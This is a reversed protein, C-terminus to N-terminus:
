IRTSVVLKQRARAQLPKRKKARKARAEELEQFSMVKARGLIESRTSGRVEAENNVQALLRNHDQLLCQKAFLIQAASALKQVGRQLRRKRPEDCAGADQQILNQLSIVGAATVPTVLSQLAEDQVDPAAIESPEAPRLAALPKPTNRLVRAPNFPFLGTAAWGAVINRKTLGKEWAPSYLYTFHEKGIADIGGRNLRKVQDRYAIKLPGFVSVDCPQLKHSTHSPLRCMIINNELCFELVELTEHTGFGDCILVRPKGNALARTQPDFVRTLWELNIKSENYGNESHGYHWGPTPHTTWNSRHTSAPWIILPLLSRGDSSICEIVTVM